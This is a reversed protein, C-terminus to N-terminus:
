RATRRDVTEVDGPQCVLPHSGLAHFPGQPSRARAIGICHTHQTASRATFYLLYDDERRIVAPAWVGGGDAATNEVWTPLEPMADHAHAWGGTLSPKDRTARQCRACQHETNDKALYTGCRCYYHRPHRSGM